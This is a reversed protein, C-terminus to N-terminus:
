FLSFHIVRCRFSRRSRRVHSRVSVSAWNKILTQCCLLQNYQCTYMLLTYGNCEDQLNVNTDDLLSELLEFQGHIAAEAVGPDM